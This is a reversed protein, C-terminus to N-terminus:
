YLMESVIFVFLFFTRYVVEFFMAEACHGCVCHKASQERQRQACFVHACDASPRVVNESCAKKCM